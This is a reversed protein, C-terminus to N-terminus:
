HRSTRGAITEHQANPRGYIGFERILIAAARNESEIRFRLKANASFAAGTRDLRIFGYDTSHNRFDGPRPKSGHELRLLETWKGAESFDVILQDGDSCGYALFRFAIKVQEFGSLDLQPLTVEDDKGSTLRLAEKDCDYGEGGRASVFQGPGDSFTQSNGFREVPHNRNSTSPYQNM